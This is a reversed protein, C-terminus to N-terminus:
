VVELHEYFSETTTVSNHRLRSTIDYVGWKNSRFMVNARTHRFMHTNAKSPRVKEGNDARPEIGESKCVEKIMKRYTDQTIKESERSAFLYDSDQSSWFTDIYRRLIRETRFENKPDIEIRTDSAYNDAGKQIGAPLYIIGEKLNIHDRKLNLLEDVRLGADTQVVVMTENRLSYKGGRNVIGDRIEEVQRKNLYLQSM